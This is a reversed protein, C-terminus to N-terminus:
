MCMDKDYGNCPSNCKSDSVKTDSPPLLSGCWCNSGMTTGMVPKNLEVCTKQCYGPSQYTWSGQDIM